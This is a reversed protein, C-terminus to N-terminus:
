ATDIAKPRMTKGNRAPYFVACAECISPRRDVTAAGAGLAIRLVGYKAAAIAKLRNDAFAEGIAALPGSLPHVISLLTNRLVTPGAARQRHAPWLGRLAEIRKM